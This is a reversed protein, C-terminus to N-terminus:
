LECSVEAAVVTGRGPLSEVLLRGGLVDVREALGRLGAGDNQAAGGVGDDRVEVQLRSGTRSLRVTVLTAQAYKVANTLAEAVVYYATTEVAGPLGEDSGEVKLRTRVPMLGIMDETAAYLGREVLSAPMLGHVLRRLEAAAADLDCRLEGARRRLVEVPAGDDVALRGAVLSLLVLRAQLGDHLDQAIRRRERDAEKVVRARSRELQQKGVLLDAMLRERDIEIAVVRGAARVQDSDPILGVDYVISGVKRAGLDIDVAARNTGLAEAPVRHGTADVQPGDDVAYLVRVSPDGLAEGVARAVGRRGETMTGLRAALEQIEGMRAFGGRLVSLVFAAPIGIMVALEVVVVAIPGAGIGRLIGGGLPIALVAVIGYTYLPALVRRHSPTAQLMRGVLVVTVATMVLIGAGAQARAGLAALAPRDAVFLVDYPPADPTFLYLPAQLVLSVLYGTVVIVRSGTTRLRGSPFALLLHVIVALPVTALIQGTAVLPPVEINALSALLWVWAGGTLLAGMRNSPRREWAILGAAAYVVGGAPLLALAWLPGASSGALLSTEVAALTLTVVWLQALALM